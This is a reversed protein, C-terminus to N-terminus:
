FRFCEQNDQIIFWKRDVLTDRYYVIDSFFIIGSDFEMLFKFDQAGETM